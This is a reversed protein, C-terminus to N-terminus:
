INATQDLPIIRAGPALPGPNLEWFLGKSDVGQAGFRFLKGAFPKTHRKKRGLAIGCGLPSRWAYDVIRKSPMDKELNESPRKAM